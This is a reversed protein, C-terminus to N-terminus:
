TSTNAAHFSNTNTTCFNRKDLYTSKNFLLYVSYWLIPHWTDRLICKCEKIWRIKPDDVIRIHLPGVLVYRLPFQPTLVPEVWVHRSSTAALPFWNLVWFYIDCINRFIGLIFYKINTKAMVQNEKFMLTSKISISNVKFM